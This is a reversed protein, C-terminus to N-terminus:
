PIRERHYMCVMNGGDRQITKCLTLESPQGDLTVTSDFGLNLFKDVLLGDSDSVSVGERM